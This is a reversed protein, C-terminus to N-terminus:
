LTKIYKELAVMSKDVKSFEKVMQKLKAPYKAIVLEKVDQRFDEYGSLATAFDMILKKGDDEDMMASEMFFREAGAMLEKQTDNM